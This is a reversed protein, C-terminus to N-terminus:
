DEAKNRRNRLCEELVKRVRMARTRLNESSIGLQVSLRRRAELLSEQRPRYYQEVLSRSDPPLREMCQELLLHDSEAGARSPEGIRVATIAADTERRQELNAEQLVKRAAGRLWANLNEIV